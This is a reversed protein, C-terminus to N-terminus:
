CKNLISINGGVSYGSGIAGNYLNNMNNTDTACWSGITSLTMPFQYFMIFMTAYIAFHFVVCTWILNIQEIPDNENQPLCFIYLNIHLISEMLCDGYYNRM